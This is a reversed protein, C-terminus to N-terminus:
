VKLCTGDEKDCYYGRYCVDDRGGFMHCAGGPAVVCVGTTPNDRIDCFLGPGCDFSTKCPVFVGKSEFNKNSSSNTSGSTNDDKSVGLVLFVTGVIIGALLLIYVITWTDM